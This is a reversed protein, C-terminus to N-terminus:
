TPDYPDALYYTRLKFCRAQTLFVLVKNQTLTKVALGFTRYNTGILIYKKKTYDKLLRLKDDRSTIKQSVKECQSLSQQM